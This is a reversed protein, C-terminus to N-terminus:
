VYNEFNPHLFLFFLFVLPIDTDTISNKEAVSLKELLTTIEMKSLVM